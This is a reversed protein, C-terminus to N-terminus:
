NRQFPTCFINCMNDINLEFKSSLDKTLSDTQKDNSTFVESLYQNPYFAKFNLYNKIPIKSIFLGSTDTVGSIRSSSDQETLGSIISPNTDFLVVKKNLYFTSPSFTDSSDTNLKYQVHLPKKIEEDNTDAWKIKIKDSNVTTFKQIPDFQVTGIESPIWYMSRNGHWFTSDTQKKFTGYLDIDTKDVSNFICDSVNITTGVDAFIGLFIPSFICNALTLSSNNYVKILHQQSLLKSYYLSNLKYASANYSLNNGDLYDFNIEPSFYELTFSSLFNSSVTPDKPKWYFSPLSPM